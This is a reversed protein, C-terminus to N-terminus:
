ASDTPYTDMCYMQRERLPGEEAAWNLTGDHQILTSFRMIFNETNASYLFYVMSGDSYM